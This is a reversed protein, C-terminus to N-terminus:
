NRTDVVVPGNKFEPMQVQLKSVAERWEPNGMPVPASGTAEMKAKEDEVSVMTLSIKNRDGIAKLRVQVKDDVNVYNTVSDARGATLASIHVLGDIEGEVESNLQSVDIRVFAGFDVTSVATGEIFQETSWGKEKLAQIAASDDRREQRQPRERKSRSAQAAEKANQEQEASLLSLAVQNKAEDIATIRVEVEQGPELIENVDSVFEVSLQSIHLLGDTTAGIDMFAGYNTITKVKAQVTDGAKFDSLPKGRPGKKKLAKRAPREVNHAEETSEVGDLAEVEEPVAEPEAEAAADAFLVTRRCAGCNCFASHVGVCAPCPCGASHASSPAVSATGQSVVVGRPAFAVVLSCCLQYSSHDTCFSAFVDLECVDDNDDFFHERTTPM